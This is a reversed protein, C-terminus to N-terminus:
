HHHSVVSTAPTLPLTARVFPIRHQQLLQQVGAIDPCVIGTETIMLPQHRNGIHYGFLVCELPTRLEIVFVSEPREVIVVVTKAEDVVLCDGGGLTTRRRLPLSFTVRRDSHRLGHVHLRDEWGLTMSDRGYGRTSEPLANECYTQEIATM